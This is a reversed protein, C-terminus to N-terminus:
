LERIDLTSFNGEFEIKGNGGENIQSTLSKKNNKEISNRNNQKFSSNLKIDGFSTNAKLNFAINPEMYIKVNGFNANVSLLDFGKQIKKIEMNSHSLSGVTLSQKFNGIKIGSHQLNITGNEVEEITVDSHRQEMEISGICKGKLNSFQLNVKLRDANQLEVKGSHQLNFSATKINGLTVNSFKSTLNLMSSFNGASLNGFKISLNSVGQHGNAITINGFEQKLTLKIQAPILITYNITVRENKKQDLKNISTVASITHQHKDINVSVKNINELAKNENSGVAEIVVRIEVTNNNWHEININGFRNDVELADTLTVDFSKSIERRKKSDANKAQLFCISATLLLVIMSTQKLITTNM